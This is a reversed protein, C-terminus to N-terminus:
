KSISEIIFVALSVLGICTLCVLALKIFKKNTPEDEQM